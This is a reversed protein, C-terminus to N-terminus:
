NPLEGKFNGGWGENQELNPNKEIEDKSIPFFYYTEPTYMENEGNPNQFQLDEAKYTFEEPMLTYTKSRAIADNLDVEPKLTALCGYTIFSSTKSGM